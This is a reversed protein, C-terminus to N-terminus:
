PFMTDHLENYAQASTFDLQTLGGAHWSTIRLTVLKYDLAIFPHHNMREAIDAVQNVFRVADMFAPFRYERVIWKGEREWGKATQLSQEIEEETFREAGKM